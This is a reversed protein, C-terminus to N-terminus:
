IILGNIKNFGSKLNLDKVRVFLIVRQDSRANDEYFKWCTECSFNGFRM